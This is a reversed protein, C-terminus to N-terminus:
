GTQEDKCSQAPTDWPTTLLRPGAAEAPRGGRKSPWPWCSHATSQNFGLTSLSPPNPLRQFGPNKVEAYRLLFYTGSFLLLVNWVGAPGQPPLSPFIGPTAASPSHSLLSAAGGGRRDPTLGAASEMGQHSSDRLLIFWARISPGASLITRKKFVTNQLCLKYSM